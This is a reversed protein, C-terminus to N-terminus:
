SKGAVIEAKLPMARKVLLASGLPANALVDLIKESANGAGYPNTMGRLSQRFEHSRARQIATLIAGGNAPADIINAARERGRQRDGVNVAPIAFSPTEMIGSSSNGLFIHAHRLLSWYAAADLNVFIEGNGRTALFKKTREVLARSGADANPYCFLLQGDVSYLAAFLADAEELTNKALTLPHYAVVTPTEQLTIGLKAQLQTRDLLKSRHLHDLSPAGARTVRWPEEGMSIIRDRAALTSTFHLHAM